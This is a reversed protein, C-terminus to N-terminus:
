KIVRADGLSLSTATDFGKVKVIIKLKQVDKVNFRLEKHRVTDKPSITVNAMERGDAEIILTTPQTTKPVHDFASKQTNEGARAEFSQFAGNLEYTVEVRPILTQGRKMTVGGITVAGTVYRESETDTKDDLNSSAEVTAKMEVLYEFRGKAYDLTAIQEYTYEIKVGAPTTVTVGKDSPTLSSVMVSNGATDLLKLNTAPAKPPLSHKFFFGRMDKIVSTVTETTELIDDSVVYTVKDGAANGEGYTVDFNSVGKGVKDPRVVVNKGRNKPLRKTRWDSDRAPDNAGNLINAIHEVSLTFKPGSLLKLEITKKKWLYSEVLLTSGDTLEVRDHRTMASPRKLDNLELRLVDKIPKRLEKGEVKYVV